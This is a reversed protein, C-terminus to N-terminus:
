LLLRSVIHGRSQLESTHEESRMKQGNITYSKGDDSLEAKTKGSNADSGATPETLAYAGFWEGTSLKPLYKEKQKENGYLAIPLTGIGTHAGYATAMSGTAGSFYDTVLVSSTFGMGLGGYEEDITIGLFGLEGVERM